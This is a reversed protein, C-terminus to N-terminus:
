KTRAGHFPAAPVSRPQIWRPAPWSQATDPAPPWPVSTTAALLKTMGPMLADPGCNTVILRSGVTTCDHILLGLALWPMRNTFSDGPTIAWMLADSFAVTATRGLSLM